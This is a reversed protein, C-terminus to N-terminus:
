EPVPQSSHAPTPLAPSSAAHPSPTFRRGALLALGVALSAAIELGGAVGFALPFPEAARERITGCVAIGVLMGLSGLANFAGMAAGRETPASLEGALAYMPVTQFACTVGLLLNLAMLGWLGAGGMALLVVGYAASGLVVLPRLGIRRGLLGAPWCFALFGFWFVLSAAATWQVDNEVHAAFLAALLVALAGFTFKDVFAYVFPVWLRPMHRFARAVERLGPAMPRISEPRRLQPLLALGALVCAGGAVGFLLPLSREGLAMALPQGLVYGLPVGATLLAFGAARTRGDTVDAVRAFLAALALASAFGDVLRLVVLWPLSPIHPTAMTLLGSITVGACILPVRRGLRDSLLGLPISLLLVALSNAGMFPKTAAAGFPEAVLRELTPTTIAMSLILAGMLVACEIVARPIAPRDGANPTPKSTKLL